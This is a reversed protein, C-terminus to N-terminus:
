KFAKLDVKVSITASPKTGDNGALWVNLKLTTSKAKGDVVDGKFGIAYRGGGIDALEYYAAGTVALKVSKIKQVGQPVGLVVVGESFRDDRYLTVSKASQTITPKSASVTLAAGKATSVPSGGALPESELWITYKGPALSQGAGLGIKWDGDVAACDFSTTKINGKSDKVVFTPVEGAFGGLCNIFKATVTASAGTTLDIKGGVSLSVKPAYKATDALTKLGITTVVDTPAGKKDVNADKLTLRLKYSMGAADGKNVSVAVSMNDASVVAVPPKETSPVVAKGKADLVEADLQYRSMDFGPISPILTLTCAEGGEINPNLSLSKRDAKLSVKTNAAVVSVNVTLQVPNPANEISVFLMLKGGKLQEATVGPAAKLIFRGSDEDFGDTVYLNQLKYTKANVQGAPAVDIGKVGLEDFSTKGSKPLVQMPAGTGRVLDALMKASGGLKLAPPTIVTSVKLSVPAAKTWGDPTVSLYLTGNYKKDAKLIEVACGDDSLKLWGKSLLTDNQKKKDANLEIKDATGGTIEIPATLEGYFANVKVAAAKLTPLNGSLKVTLTDPLIIERGDATSLKFQMKYSTKLAALDASTVGQKPTLVVTSSDRIVPSFRAAFDAISSQDAKGAPIISLSSGPSNLRSPAATDDPKRIVSLEATPVERYIDITVQSSGLRFVADPADTAPANVVDVRVEAWVTDKEVPDNSHIRLIAPEDGAELATITYSGDPGPEVKIRSSNGRLTYVLGQVDGETTATITFTEDKELVLHSHSLTVSKVSPGQPESVTVTCEATKDGVTATVTATGASVGTVIGDEGVTAAPGSSTWTVTKDDTTNEPEYGVSLVSSEGIELALTSHNLTIRELPVTADTVSVTCSATLEGVAATIVATGSSVATVIGDEVTAVLPTESSWVADKPETTNAPTYLVELTLTNGVQLSAETQDLAISELPIQIDSVTVVCTATKDGVKATITARGASEATVKGNEDVSAVAPDDSTFAATKDDTTDEPLYSVTLTLTSGVLLDAETKDLTIGELPKVTVLDEIAQQLAALADDVQSQSAEDNDAVAQARTIEEGLAARSAETYAADEAKDRAESIRANLATKDVGGLPAIVKNIEIDAEDQDLKLTVTGTAAGPVSQTAPVLDFPTTWQTSIASNFYASTIAALVSEATDTNGIEMAEVAARAADVAEAFSHSIPAIVIDAELLREAGGLSLVLTGTISGAVGIAAPTIAPDGEAWAVTVTEKTIAAGVASLIDAAETDNTAEFVALAAEAEGVATNLAGEVDELQEIPLSITLYKYDGEKALQLEGQIAGPKQTTAKEITLTGPVWSVAISEDNAAEAAAALIDEGTTDNTAAFHELAAAIIGACGTLPNPALNDLAQGLATAAADVMAQTVSANRNIADADNYARALVRISAASYEDQNALAQAAQQLVTQLAGKDVNSLVLIKLTKTTSSGDKIRTVQFVVDVTTSTEPTGLNGLTDVLDLNSTTLIELLYGDPMAPLKLSTDGFAPAPILVEENMVEQATASRGPVECFYWESYSDGGGEVKVAITVTTNIRLPNISMNSGSFSLVSTDGQAYSYTVTFGAPATPLTAAVQDKAIAPMNALINELVNNCTLSDPPVVVPLTITATDGDDETNAVELTVDVSVYDTTKTIAGDAGIVATNSSSKIDVAYGEPVAPLRLTADDMTVEMPLLSAAVVAADLTVPVGNMMIENTGPQAGVHAISKMMVYRAYVPKQLAMKKVNFDHNISTLVTQWNTGDMSTQVEFSSIRNNADTHLEFEDVMFCGQLDFRFNPLYGDSPQAFTATKGDNVQALPHWWGGGYNPTTVPKGQIVNTYGATPFDKKIVRVTYVTRHSAIDPNQVTVTVTNDGTELPIDTSTTGQTVQEGNITVFADEGNQEPVFNISNTGEGVTLTYSFTDKSFAPVLTGEGPALGRLVLAEPMIQKSYIEFEVLAFVNANPGNKTATLKVYRGTATAFTDITTGALNDDREFVPTWDTKNNSVQLNYEKPYAADWTTIVQNIDMSEGLDVAISQPFGATACVYRTAYSGDVARAPVEGSAAGTWEVPQNLALNVNLPTSKQAIVMVPLARTLATSEDALKKIQLVLMVTVDNRKQTLTGDLAIVSPDGSEYISAEFGEPLTPLELTVQKEQPAPISLISDAVQEATFDGETGRTVTVTYSNIGMGVDGGVADIAITNEGYQLPVAPSRRGSAIQPGGNVTYKGEAASLGVTFSIETVEADVDLTYDREDPNFAPELAGESPRISTVTHLETDFDVRLCTKERLPIRYLGDSGLTATMSETEQWVGNEDLTGISAAAPQLPTIINVGGSGNSATDTVLYLSKGEKLIAAASADDCEYGAVLGNLWKTQSYNRLPHNQEINFGMMNRPSACALKEGIANLSFNLRGMDRGSERWTTVPTGVEWRYYPGGAGFDYMGQDCWHETLQWSVYGGGNVLSTLALSSTNSFSGDNEAIHPFRTDGLKNVINDKIVSVNANYSDDGMFDMGPMENLLKYQQPSFAGLSGNIRTALSYDSAKITVAMDSIWEWVWRDELSDEYGLTDKRWNPQTVQHWYPENQVQFAATRKNTDVEGLHDMLAGLARLEAAKLYEYNPGKLVPCHVDYAGTHHGNDFWGDHKDVYDPLNGVMHNQMGKIRSGGCSNTGFYVIDWYMDYKDCLEVYKDVVSWDYEGPNIPEWDKWKFIIAIHKYGLASCKEFYNEVWDLPLPEPFPSTHGLLQQTGCNQVTVYLFPKGDVELYGRDDLDVIRSALTHNGKVTVNFTKSATASGKSLAATLTYNKDAEGRFVEGTDVDIGGDDPSVSWSIGSSAFGTKPLNLTAKVNQLDTNAMEPYLSSNTKIFDDDLEAIDEAVADEDSVTPKTSFVSFTNLGVVGNASASGGIYVRVYRATTIDIDHTKKGGSANSELVARDHWDSDRATQSVQIKYAIAYSTADWVLQVQDFTVPTQGLDVMAWHETHKCQAEAASKWGTGDDGDVLQVPITYSDFSPCDAMATKGRALDTAAASVGLPFAGLLLSFVMVLCCLFSIAKKM